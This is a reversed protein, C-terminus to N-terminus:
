IAKWNKQVFWLTLKELGMKFPSLFYAFKFKSKLSLSFVLRCYKKNFFGIIFLINKSIAMGRCKNYNEFLSFFKCNSVLHCDSENGGYCIDEKIENQDNITWSSEFLLDWFGLSCSGIGHFIESCIFYFMPHFNLSFAVSPERFIRSM